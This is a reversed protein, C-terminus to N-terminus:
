TYKCYSLDSFPTNSRKEKEESYISLGMRCTCDSIYSSNRLLAVICGMKQGKKNYIYKVVRKEM